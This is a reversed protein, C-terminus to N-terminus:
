PLILKLRKGSETVHYDTPPAPDFMPDPGDYEFEAFPASSTLDVEQCFPDYKEHFQDLERSLWNEVIFYHKNM